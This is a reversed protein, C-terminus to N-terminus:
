RKVCTGTLILRGDETLGLTEPAGASAAAWDIQSVGFHRVCHETASYRGASQAAAVNQGADRVETVFAARNGRPADTDTRFDIGDFLYLVERKQCATALLLMAILVVPKM